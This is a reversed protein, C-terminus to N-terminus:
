TARSSISKRRAPSFTRCPKSRPVPPSPKRRGRSLRGPVSRRPRCRLARRCRDKSRPDARRALLYRHHRALRGDLHLAQPRGESLTKYGVDSDKLIGDFVGIPGVHLAYQGKDPGEGRRSVLGWPQVALPASGANRVRQRITFMFDRDVAIVQEFVAGAPSTWSLTVPAKPTLTAASATWVADAPPAATGTWGFQGFYADQTGSPSLLRVPPANKEITTRYTPLVLDDFRAGALNISGELKPTVIRVRPARALVAGRDAVIAAPAGAPVAGPVAPTASPAAAQGPTATATVVPRKPHPFFRESVFTWGILVLASLAIAMIM